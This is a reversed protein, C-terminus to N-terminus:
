RELSNVDREILSFLSLLSSSLADSPNFFHLPQNVEPVVQKFQCGCAVALFSEFTSLILLLTVLFFFIGTSCAETM